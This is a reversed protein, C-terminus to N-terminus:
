PKPSVIGMWYHMETEAGDVDYKHVFKLTGDDAIRFVSLGAGVLRVTDGSAVKLNKISAAVLLRGTPDCAFTRVHISQTDANQILTPAGTQPDISFVAISNEGGGFVSLGDREVVQDARNAVYVFRGNPHVHIPGVIQRPQVNDPDALTSHTYAPKDEIRGENVRFMHLRNFREDAVYLWPQTPHFAVHRPGFGIGGDPEVVQGASLIGDVFKFSRLAGPDERKEGTPHNGRDVILAASGSPFVMVQHPYVGFDLTATQQIEDGISGDANLAHVTIGSVPYNHGNLVYRGMPDVCMHVARARLSKPQGLVQPTGDEALSLATVHNFSSTRRPGAEATTVYLIPRDPHRWAYQVRSPMQITSVKALTAADADVRYHTLSSGVASYLAIEPKM